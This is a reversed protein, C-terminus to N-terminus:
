KKQGLSVKKDLLIKILRYNPACVYFNRLRRNKFNNAAWEIEQIDFVKNQDKGLNIVKKLFKSENIM